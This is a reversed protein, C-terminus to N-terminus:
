KVQIIGEEVTVTTKEAEPDTVMTVRADYTMGVISENKGIVVSQGKSYTTSVDTEGNSDDGGGGCSAFFLVLTTSLITKM